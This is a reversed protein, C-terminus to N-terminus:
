LYAVILSVNKSWFDRTWLSAPNWFAPLCVSPWVNRSISQILWPAWDTFLFIQKANKAILEKVLFTWNMSNQTRASPVFVCVFGSFQSRYVSKHWNLSYVHPCIWAHEKPIPFSLKINKLWLFTPQSVSPCISFQHKRYILSFFINSLGMVFAM